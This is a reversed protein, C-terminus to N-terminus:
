DEDPAPPGSAGLGAAEMALNHWRMAEDILEGRQKMNETEAAKRLLEEAQRRYRDAPM